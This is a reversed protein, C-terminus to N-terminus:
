VFGGPLWGPELHYAMVAVVALARLGDVHAFWGAAARV